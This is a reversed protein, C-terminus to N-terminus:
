GTRRRFMMRDARSASADFAYGELDFRELMRPTSAKHLVAWRAMLGRARKAFFSVIKYGGGQAGVGPKWEQFVCEVVRAKLVSTDVSKFYEHSALNIVVPTRDAALRENLHGAIRKGWFAYLDKGHRNALQTGM